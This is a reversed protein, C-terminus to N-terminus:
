NRVMEQAGNTSLKSPMAWILAKVAPTGPHVVQRTIEASASPLTGTAKSEYWSLLSLTNTNMRRTSVIGSDNVPITEPSAVKTEFSQTTSSTQLFLLQETYSTARLIARITRLCMTGTGRNHTAAAM